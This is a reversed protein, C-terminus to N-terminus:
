QGNELRNELRDKSGNELGTKQDAMEDAGETKGLIGHMKSFTVVEVAMDEGARLRLYKAMREMVASMLRGREDATCGSLAEDVTVCELFDGAKDAPLGARLAAASLIEMRCDAWKSHTNMIGGAVKVLKGIHGALLIGTCGLEKAMDLSQGIFNSCKVVQEEGIGYEEELFELGYNGPAMVLCKGGDEQGALKVKMELYITDLIAQESMPEVIGSTGLVSLGGEIGLRPNFTKKALEEGRPISLEVAIGGEYGAEECIDEVEKKIMQRPVRNIAAEGVPQDLGPKTVTGIGAGGDITVTRGHGASETRSVKSYVVIGDTIDPDDGSDKKVGCSVAAPLKKTEKYEIKIDRICLTRREGKPLEVRVKTEDANRIGFLLEAAAKTAAQACTGTTYGRRLKREKM